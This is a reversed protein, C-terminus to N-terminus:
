RVGISKLQSFLHPLYSKLQASDAIYKIRTNDDSQKFGEAILIDNLRDLLESKKPSGEQTFELRFRKLSWDKDPDTEAYIDIFHNRRDVRYGYFYMYPLEDNVKQEYYGIEDFPETPANELECYLGWTYLECHYGSLRSSRMPLIGECGERGEIGYFFSIFGQECYGIASPHDILWDRWQAGTSKGAFVAKLSENPQSADFAPDDFVAKVFGRRETAEEDKDLRLHRKWSFDRKVNNRSTGTSLLNYHQNNSPLYDGKFLVAREFRYGADNVRDEYSNAFVAQADKSYKVFKAFYDVDAHDTWDVSNENKYFEWIGSFELIFGIQGNFYGHREAELIEKLWKDGNGRLIMSAKIREEEVLWTPFGEIPKGEALHQLISPAYDLLKGINKIASSVESASDIRNNDANALNYVVRMWQNIGDDDGYKLLYGLYAYLMVRDNYNLDRPSFLIKDMLSHLPFCHRFEPSLSLQPKGGSAALRDMADILFETSDLSLADGDRLTIFSLMERGSQNVLLVFASDAEGKVQPHREIYKLSLLASILNAMRYDCIQGYDLSGDADGDNRYAWIMNTWASDIREAFYKDLPLTLSTGDNLLRKRYVSRGSKRLEEGIYESYRAKFNEFDTLPKGRSNMKIYLEDSLHYRELEMFMFTIVPSELDLLKPLFDHRDHFLSHIADLMNLMSAITPDRKWSLHFWNKDAIIKSPSNLTSFRSDLTSFQSNNTTFTIDHLMLADCFEGSSVRTKYTFRCHQRSEDLLATDFLQRLSSDPTIRSLYWHLLFLTTLRQQGDLPIFANDSVNGYIFDLDRGPVGEDLYNYLAKLFEIRIEKVAERGQAYERQLMPIVIKFDNEVFLKFFSTRDGEGSINNKKM